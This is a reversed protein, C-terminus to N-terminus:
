GWVWTLNYIHSFCVKFKAFFSKINGLTKNRKPLGDRKRRKHLLININFKINLLALADSFTSFFKIIIYEKLKIINYRLFKQFNIQLDCMGLSNALRM